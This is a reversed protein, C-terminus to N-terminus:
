CLVSVPPHYATASEREDLEQDNDRHDPNERGDEQGGQRTGPLRGTSCGALIIEPLESRYEGHVGSLM